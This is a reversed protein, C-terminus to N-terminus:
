HRDTASAEDWNRLRHPREGVPLVTMSVAFHEPPNGGLIVLIPEPSQYRADAAIAAMASYDASSPECSGGPHYHWEGLYHLGLKWREQLLRGLGATGRRFWFWGFKSDRPKPTAELILATHGDAELRGIM